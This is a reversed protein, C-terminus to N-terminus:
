PQPLKPTTMSVSASESVPAAVAGTGLAMLGGFAIAGGVVYKALPLKAGAQHNFIAACLGSYAGLLTAGVILDNVEQSM